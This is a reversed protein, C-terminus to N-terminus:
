QRRICRWHVSPVMQLISSRMKLMPYNLNAVIAEPLTLFGTFGTDVVFEIVVDEGSPPRLPIPLIAHLAEMRGTIM